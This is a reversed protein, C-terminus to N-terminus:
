VLKDESAEEVMDPTLVHGTRAIVLYGYENMKLRPSLGVPEPVGDARRVLESIPESLTIGKQEAYASTFDYVDADLNVTLTM